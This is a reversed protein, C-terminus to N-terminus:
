VKVAQKFLEVIAQMRQTYRHNQAIEFGKLSIATRKEEHKLYFKIKDVLEEETSFYVAAIDEPFFKLQDETRNSLM